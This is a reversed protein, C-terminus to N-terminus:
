QWKKSNSNQDVSLLIKNLMSILYHNTSLGKENGFQSVDRNKSMDSIMFNALIRDAIKAFCFIGSIPRLKKMTPAPYQKPIPTILERKWIKPYIGSIFMSNILNCLPKSLEDSFLQILKM